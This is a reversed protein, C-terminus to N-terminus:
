MRMRVVEPTRLGSTTTPRWVTVHPSLVGSTTIYCDTTETRETSGNDGPNKENFQTQSMNIKVCFINTM